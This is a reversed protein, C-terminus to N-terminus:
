SIKAIMIRDHGKNEITIMLNSNDIDQYKILKMRSLIDVNAKMRKTNEAFFLPFDKLSNLTVYNTLPDLKRELTMLTRDILENHKKPFKDVIANIDLPIVSGPFNSESNHLYISQSIELIQENLERLVSSYKYWDYGFTDRNSNVYNGLDESYCFGGCIDCTVYVPNNRSFKALNGCIFCKLPDIM